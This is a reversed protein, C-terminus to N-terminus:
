LMGALLWGLIVWLLACLAALCWGVIDLHRRRRDLLALTERMEQAIEKSRADAAIQRAARDNARQIREIDAETM